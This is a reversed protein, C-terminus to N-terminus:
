NFIIEPKELYRFKFELYCYVMAQLYFAGLQSGKVQSSNTYICVPTM